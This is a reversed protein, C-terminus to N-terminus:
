DVTSLCIFAGALMLCSDDVQNVTHCITHVNSAVGKTVSQGHLLVGNSEDETERTHFFINVKDTLTQIVIWFPSCQQHASSSGM